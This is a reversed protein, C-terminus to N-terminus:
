VDNLWDTFDKTYNGLPSQNVLFGKLKRYEIYKGTIWAQYEWRKNSEDDISKGTERCWALYYPNYKVVRPKQPYLYDKNFKM